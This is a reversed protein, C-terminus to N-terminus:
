TLGIISAFVVFINIFLAFEYNLVGLYSNQSVVSIMSLMCLYQNTAAVVVPHIGLSLMIPNLIVGGALGVIGGLAGVVFSLIM